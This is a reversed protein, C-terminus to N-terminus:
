SPDMGTDNYITYDYEQEAIGQFTDLPSPNANAADLDETTPLASAANFALICGVIPFVLSFFTIKLNM